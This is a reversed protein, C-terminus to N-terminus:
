LAKKRGPGSAAKKARSPKFLDQNIKKLREFERMWEDLSHSGVTKAPVIRNIWDRTEGGEFYFYGDGKKLEATLGKKALEDNITKITVRM